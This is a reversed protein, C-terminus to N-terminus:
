KTLNSYIGYSKALAKLTQYIKVRELRKRKSMQPKRNNSHSLCATIKVLERLSKVLLAKRVDMRRQCKNQKLAQKEQTM